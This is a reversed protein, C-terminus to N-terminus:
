VTATEIEKTAIAALSNRRNNSITQDIVAGCNICEWAYFALFFDSFRELMMLGQVESLGYYNGGEYHSHVQILSFCNATWCSLM